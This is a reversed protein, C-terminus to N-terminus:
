DFLFNAIIQQGDPTLISEPHFQVGYIDYTKHRLAMIYGDESLACICLENPFNMTDVVWSHYRGVKFMLPMDKFICTADTVNVSSQVGHFVKDLNKLQAGFVEGIAQAGLCVGLMSKSNAYTIIAEEMKGADKPLGPGPSFLLKDYKELDKIEFADNKLIDVDVHLNTVLQRLNYTFSDYNDIIAVRM